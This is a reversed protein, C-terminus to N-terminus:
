LIGKFVEPITKTLGFIKKFFAVIKQWLGAKATMEQTDSGIVNGDKDYVTATFVTKGSSKPSIKCATGEASVSMSFNGNDATWEVRARDPLTRDFDAHLVISDGYNVTAQSPKVIYGTIIVDSYGVDM